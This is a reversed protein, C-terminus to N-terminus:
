EVGEFKSAQHYQENLYQKQYNLVKPVYNKTEEFPPIGNYKDVNSPGANYAALAKQVDGDYRNLMERVYRVGGDINEEINFPDKVGLYEATGPMLQMLGMAGSSSVNRPNFNSEQKIIGKILAENVNYTKAAKEIAFEIRKKEVSTVHTNTLLEDISKNSTEGGLYLSLIDLFDEEEELKMNNADTLTVEKKRKVPLPIDFPFKSEIRSYIEDIMGYPDM